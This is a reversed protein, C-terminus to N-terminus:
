ATDCLVRSSPRRMARPAPAAFRKRRTIDRPKLRVAPPTSRPAATANRSVRRSPLRRKWTLGRSGTAKAEANMTIVKAAKAAQKRGAQRAVRVSGARMRRSYLVRGALTAAAKLGASRCINKRWAVALDADERVLFFPAPVLGGM